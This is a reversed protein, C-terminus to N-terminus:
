IFLKHLQIIDPGSRTSFRWFRVGPLNLTSVIKDKLWIASIEWDILMEHHSMSKLRLGTMRMAAIMTNSVDANLGKKDKTLELFLILSFLTDILGGNSEPNFASVVFEIFKGMTSCFEGVVVGSDISAFGSSALWDGSIVGLGVGVGIGDWDPDTFMGITRPAKAIM